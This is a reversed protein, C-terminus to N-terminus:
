AEVYAKLLPSNTFLYDLVSQTHEGFLPGNCLQLSDIGGGTFNAEILVPDGMDDIAIDWSILKSINVFRLSLDTVMKICKDYSPVKFGTFTKGKPHKTIQNALVDYAVERLTGDDKIGCAIGGAHFNDVKAENTSMRLMASLPISKQNFCFTVIRLTNVACENFAALDPHQQITNQIIFDNSVELLKELVSLPESNTWFRCGMGSDSDIADKLIVSSVKSCLEYVQQTTIPQYMADMYIGDMKRAITQPMKSGAFYLDYLNKNDFVIASAYDSFFTDVFGMYFDDPMYWKLIEENTNYKNYLSYQNIDFLFHKNNFYQKWFHTIESKQSDSLPKTNALKMQLHRRSLDLRANIVVDNRNVISYFYLEDRLLRKIFRKICHKTYHNIKM